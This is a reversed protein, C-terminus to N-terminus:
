NIIEECIEMILNGGISGIRCIKDIAEVRERAKKKKRNKMEKAYGAREAWEGAGEGERGGWGGALSIEWDGAVGEDAGEGLDEKEEGGAGGGESRAGFEWEGEGEGWPSLEECFFDCDGAGSTAPSMLWSLWVVAPSKFDSFSDESPIFPPCFAPTATPTM